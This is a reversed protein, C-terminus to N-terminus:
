TGHPSQSQQLRWWGCGCMTFEYVVWAPPDNGKDKDQHVGGRAELFKGRLSEGIATAIKRCSGLFSSATLRPDHPLLVHLLVEEEEEEEEEKM